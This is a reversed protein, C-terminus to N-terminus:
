RRPRIPKDPPLQSLIQEAQKAEPTGPNNQMLLKFEDIAEKRRDIKLLSDGKKFRATAIKSNTPYSQLLKDFEPVASKYDLLKYYADGIFYQANGAGETQGFCKVYNQFQAIALQYNGRLYDSYAQGYQQDGNDCNTTIEAPHTLINKIEKVLVEVREIRQDSANLRENLQNIQQTTNTSNTSVDGIGRDLIERTQGVDRRTVSINDVVQNLLATVQGNNKDASEQLDRVQKELIMVEGKLAALEDKDKAELPRQIAIAFLFLAALVGAILIKRM